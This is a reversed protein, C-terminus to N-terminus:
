RLIGCFKIPGIKKLVTEPTNMYWKDVHDFKLQKCLKWHIVKGRLRVQEQIRETGTQQMQKIYPKNGFLMLRKSGTEELKKM